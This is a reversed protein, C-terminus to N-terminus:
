LMTLSLTKTKINEDNPSLIIIGSNKLWFLSFKGTCFLVQYIISRTYLYQQLCLICSMLYLAGPMHLIGSVPYLIGPAIYLICHVIYIGQYVIYLICSLYLICSVLYLICSVPYLIYSVEFYLICSRVIYLIFVLYQLTYWASSYRCSYRTRCLLFLVQQYLICSVREKYLIGPVVVLYLICHLLGSSVLSRLYFVVFIFIYLLWLEIYSSGAVLYACVVAYWTCVLYEPTFVCSLLSACLLLSFLDCGLCIWSGLRM